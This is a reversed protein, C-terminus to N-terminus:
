GAADRPLSRRVQVVAHARLGDVIWAFVALAGHRPGDPQADDDRLPRLVVAVNGFRLAPISFHGCDLEGERFCADREPLGWQRQVRAQVDAPLTAFFAGYDSRAFDEAAARALAAGDNPIDTVRYGAAALARLAAVAADPWDLALGGPALAIRRERPELAAFASAEVAIGPLPLGSLLASQLEALSAVRPPTELGRTRLVDALTGLLAAHAPAASM